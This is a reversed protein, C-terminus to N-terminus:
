FSLSNDKLLDTYALIVRGPPNLNQRGRRLHLRWRGDTCRCPALQRGKRLTRESGFRCHRAFSLLIIVTRYIISKLFFQRTLQRYTMINNSIRGLRESLTLMLNICLLFTHIQLKRQVRKSGVSDILM